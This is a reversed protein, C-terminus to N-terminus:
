VLSSKYDFSSIINMASGYVVLVKQKSHWWISSTSSEEEQMLCCSTGDEGREYVILRQILWFGYSAYVHLIRLGLGPIM